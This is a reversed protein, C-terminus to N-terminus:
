VADLLNPKPLDTSGCYLCQRYRISNRSLPQECDNCKQPPPTNSQLAEIKEQLASDDIGQEQLLAWMGRCMLTLDSIKGNLDELVDYVYSANDSFRKAHREMKRMEIEQNFDWSLNYWDFGM